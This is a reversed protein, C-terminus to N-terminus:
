LKRSAYLWTLWKLYCYCSIQGLLRPRNCSPQEVFPVPNPAIKGIMFFLFFNSLLVWLLLLHWQNHCCLIWLAVHVHEVSYMRSTWHLRYASSTYLFWNFWFLEFSGVEFLNLGLNTIHFESLLVICLNCCIQLMESYFKAKTNWQLIENYYKVTTNWHLIEFYFKITTNWQLIKSYWLSSSRRTVAHMCTNSKCHVFRECDVAWKCAFNWATYLVTWLRRGVLYALCPHQFRIV